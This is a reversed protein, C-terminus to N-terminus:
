KELGILDAKIDGINKTFERRKKGGIFVIKM